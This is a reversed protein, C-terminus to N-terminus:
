AHTNIVYPQPSKLSAKSSTNLSSFLAILQQQQKATLVDDIQDLVDGSDTGNTQASLIIQGIETQQASTLELEALPSSADSLEGGLRKAANEPAAPEYRPASNSVSRVKSM